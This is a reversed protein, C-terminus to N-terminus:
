RPRRDFYVDCHFWAGSPFYFIFRHGTSPPHCAIIVHRFKPGRVTIGKGTTWDHSNSDLKDWSFHVKPMVPVNASAPETM